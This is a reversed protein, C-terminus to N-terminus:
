ESAEPAEGGASNDSKEDTEGTETEFAKAEVTEVAETAANELSVTEVTEASEAQLMETNKAAKKKEEAEAAEKALAKYKGQPFFADRDFFLFSLVLMVAGISIFFDAFNCVAFGFRSLDVMDRVGLACDAEWVRFLLRDILNGIGGSVVLVLATRLFARRKDIKFYLVALAAMMVATLAIVFIKLAPSSDGGIGYAIGDNYTLRLSIWGPIIDIADNRRDGSFYNEAAIKTVLDVILLLVFLGIGWLFSLDRKKREGEPAPPTELGHSAEATEAVEVVAAETEVVETELTETEIVDTTQNNETM